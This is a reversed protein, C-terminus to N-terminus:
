VLTFSPREHQPLFTPQANELFPHQPPYKPRLLSSPTSFVVYRPAKNDTSRMLCWEPSWTLFFLIPQSQLVCPTLLLAYLTKTAFGSPLLGSPVGLHLHSSLILSSRRYTSNPPPSPPLMFQISRASSLSLHIARTFAAIFLRTGYFAFFNKALQSKTQKDPRVRSWPTLWTVNM